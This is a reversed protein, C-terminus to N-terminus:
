ANAAQSGDGTFTTGGAVTTIEGPNLEGLPTPDVLFSQQALGGRNQVTVTTRGSPLVPAVFAITETNPISIGPVVVGAIVVQTEPAFNQGRITIRTGGQNRVRDPGVGAIQPQGFRIQKTGTGSDTV